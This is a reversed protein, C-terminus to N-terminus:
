DKAIKVLAVKKWFAVGYRIVNMYGMGMPEETYRREDIQALADDCAGGLGKWSDTIKFELIIYPKSRQSPLMVADLRGLGAERNSKLSYGGINQLIGLIFGHYFDEKYDNYSITEFLADTIENTVTETDGTLLANYLASRDRTKSVKNFWEVVIEQYLSEIEVNPIALRYFVKNGEKHEATKTLYGTFFMFGWIHDSGSELTKYTVNESVAKEITGGGMLTELEDRTQKTAQAVLKKVIDNSSTNAWHSKCFEIPKVRLLAMMSVVSWPNYVDSNGIHYGNYWSRLDEKRFECGYATLMEDVETQTFGFYEGYSVHLMSVVNLNNLGTFVSEQSVRLCGTIVAFELYPNTKLANEFLSRITIIM